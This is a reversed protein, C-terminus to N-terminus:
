TYFQDPDLFRFSFPYARYTHMTDSLDVYIIKSSVKIKRIVKKEGNFSLDRERQWSEFETDFRYQVVYINKMM